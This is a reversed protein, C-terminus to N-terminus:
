NAKKNEKEILLGQEASDGVRDSHILIESKMRYNM